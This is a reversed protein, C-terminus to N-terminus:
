LSISLDLYISSSSFTQRRRSSASGTRSVLISRQRFRVLDSLILTLSFQSNEGCLQPLCPHCCGLVNSAVESCTSMKAECTQPPSTTQVKLLILHISRNFHDLKEMFKGLCTKELQDEQVEVVEEQRRLM